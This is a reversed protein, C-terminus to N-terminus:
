PRVRERALLAWSSGISPQAFVTLRHIEIPGSRVHILAAVPGPRGTLPVAVTGPGPDAIQEARTQVARSLAHEPVPEGVSRSRIIEDAAERPLGHLARRLLPLPATRANLAGEGYGTVWGIAAAAEPGAPALSGDRAAPVAPVAAAHAIACLGVPADGRQAWRTAQEGFALGDLAPPLGLAVRSGLHRTHLRGALDIVRVRLHWQDRDATLVDQLASPDHRPGALPGASFAESAHAELWDLVIEEADFALAVGERERRDLTARAGAQHAHALITVGVVSFLSLAILALVLALGHPHEPIHSPNSTM